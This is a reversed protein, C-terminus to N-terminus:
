CVNSAIFMKCHITRWLRVAYTCIYAHINLSLMSSPPPWVSNTCMKNLKGFQRPVIITNRTRNVGCEMPQPVTFQLWVWVRTVFLCLALAFCWSSPSRCTNFLRKIAAYTEDPLFHGAFISFDFSFSFFRRASLIFKDPRSHAPTSKTIEPMEM